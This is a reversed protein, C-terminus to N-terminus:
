LYIFIFKNGPSVSKPMELWWSIFVPAHLFSCSWVLVHGVSNIFHIVLVWQTVCHFKSWARNYGIHLFVLIYVCKHILLLSVLQPLLFLFFFVVVVMLATIWRYVGTWITSFVFFFHQSQDSVGIYLVSKQVWHSFALTPHNSLSFLMSVHVNGYPFCIVLAVEICSVPCGFGTSQSLESPHHPTWFTPSVHTGTAAGHQHIAFVM